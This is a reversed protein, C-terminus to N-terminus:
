ERDGAVPDPHARVVLAVAAAVRTLGSTWLNVRLGLLHSAPDIRLAEVWLRGAAYGAVYLGFLQGPRRRLWHRDVAVLLGALALNWLAEYLFTPRFTAVDAVGAPRHAPDSKLGWPM